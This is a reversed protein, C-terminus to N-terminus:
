GNHQILKPGEDRWSEVRVLALNKERQNEDGGEQEDAPHQEGVKDDKRVGESKKHAKRTTVDGGHGFDVAIEREDDFEGEGEAEGELDGNQDDHQHADSHEM